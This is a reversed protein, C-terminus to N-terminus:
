LNQRIALARGSWISSAHGADPWTRGPLVGLVVAVPRDEHALWFTCCPQPGHARHPALDSRVENAAGAPREGTAARQEAIGVPDHFSVVPLGLASLSGAGPGGGDAPHCRAGRRSGVHAAYLSDPLPDVQRPSESM